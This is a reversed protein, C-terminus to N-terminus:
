RVLPVLLRMLEGEQETSVSLLYLGAALRWSPLVLTHDGELIGQWQWCQRGELTLLHLTWQQRIPSRVHVAIGDDQLDVRAWSGLRIGFRSVGCFLVTLRGDTTVLVTHKQAVLQAEAFHLPTESPLSALAVGVLTGVLQPLTTDLKPIVPLTCRLHGNGDYTFPVPVTTGRMELPLLLAPDFHLEISIQELGARPSAGQLWLPIRVTDGPRAVHHAIWLRFPYLEMPVRAHLEAGVTVLCHPSRGEISLTGQFVGSDSATFRVRLPVQGGAPLTFPLPPGEVAFGAVPPEIRISEVRIDLSSPNRLLIDNTATEGNWVSGFDVPAPELLLRPHLGLVRLQVERQQGCLATRLRVTVTTPGEPLESPILLLRVSDSGKAPVRVAPTQLRFGAAPPVLEAIVTDPLTGTNSVPIAFARETQCVEVSGLEVSEVSELTSRAFESRLLYRYEITDLYGPIPTSAVFRLVLVAEVSGEQSQRVHVRVPLAQLPPLRYPTPPFLPEFVPTPPELFVSELVLPTAHDPNPDVIWTLVVVTDLPTCARSFTRSGDVRAIAQFDVPICLSFPCEADSELCLTGTYRQENGPALEILLTDSSGSPLWTGPAPEVLTVWPPAPPNWRIRDLRVHASGTATLVIPITKRSGARVVAVLRQPAAEVAPRIGEGRVLIVLREGCPAATVVVSDVFSGEWVPTFRIRLGVSDGGLVLPPNRRDELEAAFPPSVRPQTLFATLTGRNELRLRLERTVGLCVRGFDYATLEATLQSRRAEGALEIRFPNKRGRVATSDNNELWLTATFPGETPPQLLLLLTDTRGPAIRVPFSQGSTWGLLTVTGSPSETLWTRSIRLTDNGTNAIPLSDLRSMQCQLSFTRSGAATLIPSVGYARVVILTERRCPELFVRFRSEVWGTDLLLASFTVATGQPPISLPLPSEPRIAASGGAWDIRTIVASDRSYWTLQALTRVGCPVSLMLLTDREPFGDKNRATGVLEVRRVMGDAFRAILQARHSGTRSPEFRVTLPTWSCPQLIATLPFSVLRFAAADPGAISLTVQSPAVSRNQLRVTIDVSGPICVEPFLLTDREFRRDAPGYRWVGQGVVWGLTDHVFWIDDLHLTTDIGCNRLQWTQGGDSTFYVAGNYGCAWGTTPSLLFAGFMPRGTVFERWTGGGDTSFRMGGTNGQGSCSTGAFPLLFSNGFRTIEEQWVNSGTTAFVSWTQGSDTTRWLRGSSVAFGTGDPYLIADTLGSNPENGTFFSWSAGGDTTRFFRQPTSGCGGGLVVGVTPSLFYCGWLALASDPTIETWTAGGDTSRWIGDPGSTYGVLPNVFHISELQYAGPIQTGQWTRGGDTTRIVMGNFGCIWGYRPDSPLFFVDLWYNTTYPAPITTVPQWQQALAGLSFAVLLVVRGRM